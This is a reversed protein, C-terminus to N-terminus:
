YYAPLSGGTHADVYSKRTFQNAQTPDTNPGVPIQLFTVVSSSTDITFVNAAANENRFIFSNLPSNSNSLSWKAVGNNLFYQYTTNVGVTDLSFFTVGGGYGKVTLSGTSIIQNGAYSALIIDVPNYFTPSIYGSSLTILARVASPNTQAFKATDVLNISLNGSDGNTGSLGAGAIQTPKVRFQNGANLDIGNGYLVATNVALSVSGSIGGGSMGFGANVATITGGGGGGAGSVPVSVVNRMDYAIFADASNDADYIATAGPRWYIAAVPIQGDPFTPLVPSVNEAGQTVQTNGVTNISIIDLRDNTIPAVFGSVAQTSMNFYATASFWAFGGNMEVTMDEPSQAEVFFRDLAAIEDYLPHTFTNQLVPDGTNLRNFKAIATM